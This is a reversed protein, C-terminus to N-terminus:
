GTAVQSARVELDAAVDLALQGCGSAAAPDPSSVALVALQESGPVLWLVEVLGPQRLLVAPRTRDGGLGVLELRRTVGGRLAALAGEAALAPDRVGPLERFGLTLSAVLSVQDSTDPDDLSRLLVAAFRAGARHAQRSARTLAPVTAPPWALARQAARGGDAAIAIRQWPAPLELHVTAGTM